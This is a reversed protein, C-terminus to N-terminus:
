KNMNVGSESDKIQLIMAYFILQNVLQGISCM